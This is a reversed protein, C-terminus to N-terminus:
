HSITISTSLIKFCSPLIPSQTKMELFASPHPGLVKSCSHLSLAEPSRSAQAGRRTGSVADGRLLCPSDYCRSLGSRSPTLLGSSQFVTVGALLAGDWDRKGQGDGVPGLGMGAGSRHGPLHGRLFNILPPLAM